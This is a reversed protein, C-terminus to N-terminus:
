TGHIVLKWNRSDKSPHGFKEVAEAPTIVKNDMLIQLLSRWGRIRGFFAGLKKCEDCGHCAYKEEVLSGLRTHVMRKLEHSWNWEILPRVGSFGFQFWMGEPHDETKPVRLCAAFETTLVASRQFWFNPRLATLRAIFQEPTLTVGESAGLITSPRAGDPALCREEGARGEADIQQRYDETVLESDHQFRQSSDLSPIGATVRGHDPKIEQKRIM